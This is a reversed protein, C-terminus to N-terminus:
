WEAQERAKAVNEADNISGTFIDIIHMNNLYVTPLKAGTKHLLAGYGDQNRPPKIKPMGRRANRNNLDMYVSDFLQGDLSTLMFQHRFGPTPNIGLPPKTHSKHFPKSIFVYGGNTAWFTVYVTNTVTVNNYTSMLTLRDFGTNYVNRLLYMQVDIPVECAIEMVSDSYSESIIDEQHAIRKCFRTHPPVHFYGPFIRRQSSDPLAEKYQQPYLRQSKLPAIKTTVTVISSSTNFNLQSAQVYFSYATNQKLNSVTVTEVGTYGSGYLTYSSGNQSYYLSLSDAGVPLVPTILTISSYTCKSSTPPLPTGLILFTPNPSGAINDSYKTDQLYVGIKSATTINLTIKAGANALECAAQTSYGGYAGFNVTNSGYYVNYKDSSVYSILWGTSSNSARAGNVYGIIYAGVPYSTGAGFYSITNSYIDPTVTIM